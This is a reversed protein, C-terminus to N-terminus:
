HAGQAILAQALARALVRPQTRLHREIRALMAASQGREGDGVAAAFAPAQARTVVAEDGHLRVTRGAGFNQFWQGTMGFTGKAYGETGGAEGYTRYHGRIDIDVVDPLGELAAGLKDVAAAAATGQRQILAEIEAIIAASAGAGQQSSAWLREVYQLADDHSVGVAMLQDRVGILVQRWRDTGAEMRQADSLMAIVNDEFRAVLDRGALEDASPGGFLNKFFGGIKNLLPGLLQGVVPLMASIASGLGFPLMQTLTAGWQKQFHTGLAQGAYSGAATLVSGGGQIAGLIANPLGAAFAEFSARWAPVEAELVPKVQKISPALSMGIAAAAREAAAAMEATVHVARGAIPHYQGLEGSADAVAAKHTTWSAAALDVSPIVQQTTIDRIRLLAYPADRGLAQYAELAALVKTRLTEKAAATLKSVNEVNGLAEVLTQAQDITDTGFLGDKAKAIANAHELAATARELEGTTGEMAAFLADGSLAMQRISDSGQLFATDAKKVVDPLPGIQDRMFKRLAESPKDNILTAWLEMGQALEGLVTKVLPLKESALGGAADALNTFSTWLRTGQEATTLEQQGLESLKGRAAELAATMFAQKREAETLASSSKGLTAAYAENAEGLKVSLGLNDLIMPSSRGLATILDDLSKTADQGMARGLMTATRALDGMEQATLNLGLLMAKNGAQILELDGVLGRSGERLQRLRREAEESGGALRDFSTRLAEIQSGRAVSDAAFAAVQSGMALVKTTVAAAAGAVVGQLLGSMSILPPEVARTKEALDVLASPAKRGLAEYQAIAKTVLANIHEKKEITLKEAGGMKEVAAAYNHAARILNEGGLSRALKDASKTMAEIQDLGQELHRRLEDTNSAWRVVAAITAM